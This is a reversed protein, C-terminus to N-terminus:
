KKKASVVACMTPVDVAHCIDTFGSQELDERIEDLSYVRGTKVSVLMNIGFLTGALPSTHSRDMVFDRIAIKGGPSLADRVKSYLARCEERNMQHIIASVWAFDFGSPLPDRTFDGEVLVVRDKKEGWDRKRAQTIGAPLDFIAATSGPLAELFALTYTGSAGGVDLIRVDDKDFSLVGSQRLSAVVSDVLQVAISNMGMIFSAKDQDEGLLSTVREQPEGSRVTWSLRAWLRQQCALHRLFPIQSRPHSSDLYERYAEAVSYEASEGYGSKEFYGLAVIADLLRTCARVDCDGKRAIEKATLANGHRLLVSALDLEALTGLVSAQMFGYIDNHLKELPSETM